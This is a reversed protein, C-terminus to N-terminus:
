TLNKLRKAWENRNEAERKGEIWKLGMQRLSEAVEKDWTKKPRGRGRKQQVRTAWIKRTTREMDMRIIHGFWRLQQRQISKLIPEVGLEERTVENRIRDKRTINKVGRLYKMEVAQINSKLQKTLVWSESGYILIPKFITKYVTIKTKKTIEKKKIFTNNLAYYVKTATEIRGNIEASISGNCQITVGLYKFARVQEIEKGNIIIEMPTDTTKKGIVMVKSKKENIRLNISELSNKWTELNFQLDQNSKAYIVLDDAFISESIEVRKMNRFGVQLKKVKGKVEKVIDDMVLNFLTPSLVGGQRLGEKTVFEKSELNGTRVINRTNNYVSKICKSLKENIKRKKLSNWIVARPVSDFAKEIDIFVVFIKEATFKEILQKIVFIHDQTGRGRRFGCQSDELQNEIEVKLKMELVSEYIKAIISLLTIGRYNACDRRDGKKYIPLLVGIEWDKPIKEEEWMKNFLKTIGELGKVGLNKIMEPAIGDYGAAKGGKLKKVVKIVEEVQIKQVQDEYQANNETSNIKREENALQDPSHETTLM